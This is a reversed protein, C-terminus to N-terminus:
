CVTPGCNEQATSCNTIMLGGGAVKDVTLQAAQSRVSSALIQSLLAAGAAETRATKIFMSPDIIRWQAVTSVTIFENGSTPVQIADAILSMVRKDLRFVEDLVPWKLYLGTDDDIVQVINGMRVVVVQEVGRVLFTSSNMFISLLVVSVFIAIFRNQSM